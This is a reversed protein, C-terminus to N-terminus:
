APNESGHCLVRNRGSNKAQYAAADAHEIVASLAKETLPAQASCTYGISVTIRISIGKHTFTHDAVKQRLEELLLRFREATVDFLVLLFEEGGYRVVVDSRRFNKSLLRAFSKLVRDGALHGHTDNVLKFNDIDVIAFCTQVRHRAALQFLYRINHDLYRRNRLGTLTDTISLEEVKHYLDRIQEYSAELTEAYANNQISVQSELEIVQQELRPLVALFRESDLYRSLFASREQLQKWSRHLYYNSHKYYRISQRVNLKLGCYYSGAFFHLHQLQRYSLLNPPLRLLSRALGMKEEPSILKDELCFLEYLLKAGLINGAQRAPVGFKLLLLKKLATRNGWDLMCIWTLLVYLASGSGEQQHIDSVLHLWLDTFERLKGQQQLIRAQALQAVFGLCPGLNSTELRLRAHIQRATEAEELEALLYLLQVQTFPDSGDPSKSVNYLALHRAAELIQQQRLPFHNIYACFELLRSDPASPVARLLTILQECLNASLARVTKPEPESRTNPTAQALLVSVLYDRQNGQSDLLAGLLEQTQKKHRPNGTRRSEPNAHAAPKPTKTHGAASM